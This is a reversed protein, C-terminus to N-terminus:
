GVSAQAPKLWRRLVQTVEAVRVPKALYDSMGAALCKERDGEMANATLAIIPVDGGGAKGRIEATAAYGDMDPMQCDMLVLDHHGARFAQVADRGNNVTEVTCGFKQLIRTAVKQNVVNDEALLIHAGYHVAKAQPSHALHRAEVGAGGLAQAIRGTLESARVPKILFDAFGAKRLTERVGKDASSLLIMTLSSSLSRDQQILRGLQEGDTVPMQHDIIAVQYPSGSGAASKLEALAERASEACECVMQAARLQEALIRRNVPHDDVVLVKVGALAAPAPAAAPEPDIPLPLVFWFKSGAEPRSEVHLSGGMLEVLSRSIALGLGTGGYKRTTSTDAQTFKEFIHTLKDAPIGIGSDQVSVRIMAQGHRIEGCEVTVIVSGAQTFKIGNGVLNALVQRIRGSDGILHRPTGQAYEVILEIGKEDAKQAFLSTTTEIVERLDCPTLDIAMKGAEIKSFDLIDNLVTLLAVGSQYITQSYERQELTLKTESLLAAMGLVGNMPTRIEHSMNALFESKMRSAALAQDRAEALEGNRQELEQAALKLAEESKQLDATRQRVKREIDENTAELAAQQNAREWMERRGQGCSSILFLDEFVVWAAHEVPRWPSAVLVGFVSQPWWIGRVFHDAAVVITASVLVRWDRYFALFALSGFVHFHTEIRGGTLHILLAGALMQGIAIVHRTLPQGPRAFGLYAPLGCIVAGLFTAAWIHIHVESQSGYWTRPSVLLAVVIGAMWQFVFLGAFLRDTRQTLRLDFSDYLQKPRPREGSPQLNPSM